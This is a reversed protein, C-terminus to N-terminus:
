TDPRTWVYTGAGLLCAAQLGLVWLPLGLAACLAFTAAMMAVALRKHRRAIAGTQEWALVPPGLRPHTELWRRLRPSGKTFCFGALLLFVTTPMLPLVIGILGLALAIVGALTWLPSALRRAPPM